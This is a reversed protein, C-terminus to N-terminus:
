LSCFLTHHVVVTVPSAATKPGMNVFICRSEHAELRGSDETEAPCPLATADIDGDADHAAAQRSDRAGGGWRYPPAAARRGYWESRQTDGWVAPAPCDLAGDTTLGNAGAVAESPVTSGGAEDTEVYHRPAPIYSRRATEPEQTDQDAGVEDIRKAGMCEENQRAGRAAAMIVDMVTLGVAPVTQHQLTTTCRPFGVTGPHQRALTPNVAARGMTCGAQLVDVVTAATVLLAWTQAVRRQQRGPHWAETGTM